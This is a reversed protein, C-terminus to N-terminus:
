VVVSSSEGTVTVTTSTSSAYDSIRSDASESPTILNYGGDSSKLFLFSTLVAFVVFGAASYLVYPVLSQAPSISATFQLSPLFTRSKYFTESPSFSASPTFVQPLVNRSNTDHVRRGGAVFPTIGGHMSSKSMQRDRKRPGVQEEPPVGIVREKAKGDTKSRRRSVAPQRIDDVDEKKSEVRPSPIIPEFSLRDAFLQIYKRESEPVKEMVLRINEQSDIADNEGLVHCSGHFAFNILHPEVNKTIIMGPTRLYALGFFSYAKDLVCDSMQLYTVTGTCIAPLDNNLFMSNFINNRSSSQMLSITAKNNIFNCFGIVMSQNLELLRFINMSSCNDFESFTITFNTSSLSGFAACLTLAHNETCNTLQTRFIGSLFIGAAKGTPKQSKSCKVISVDSINMTYYRSNLNIFFAHGSELGQCHDFCTRTITMNDVIAYFGGGSRKTSCKQFMCRDMRIALTKRDFLIAGGQSSTTECHIFSSDIVHVEMKHGYVTKHETNQQSVLDYYSSVEVAHDLFNRFSSRFMKFNGIQNLESYFPSFQNSIKFNKISTFTAISRQPSILGGFRSSTIVLSTFTKNM